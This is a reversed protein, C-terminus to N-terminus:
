EHVSMVIIAQRGFDKVVSSKILLLWQNEGISV